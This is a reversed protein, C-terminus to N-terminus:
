KAVAVGASIYGGVRVCTNSGPIVVGAMGGINCAKASETRKPKMTPLEASRAGDLGFIFVSQVLSAAIMATAIKM